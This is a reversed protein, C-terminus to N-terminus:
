PEPSKSPKKSSKAGRGSRKPKAQAVHTETAEQAERKAQYHRVFDTKLQAIEAQLSAVEEDYLAGFAAIRQQCELLRVAFDGTTATCEDPVHTHSRPM